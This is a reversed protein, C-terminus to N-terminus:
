RREFVGLFFSQESGWPTKHLEAAQRVPAFGPGLEAAMSAADYRRVDLDSCRTPGDKAFAAVILRGGRPLTREAQEVYRRRDDPDTLFHFVARDHWVDFVGLEPAETVDAVIWEVEAGRAGLRTRAKELATAAVDLVALRAPALTLLHDVLTSAGGGVDIVRGGERPLSERVLELSLRPAEQYWGVADTAKSAYVEDWHRKRTTASSM